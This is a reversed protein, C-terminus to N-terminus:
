DGMADAIFQRKEDDDLKRWWFLAQELPSKVKRFGAKIAAKNATLEGAVVQEYLEPAERHLRDLTYALSNGREPELTVNDSKIAADETKRDGGHAATTAERFMRLAEPDDKIVAEVKKLDEGWGRYPKETILQVLSDLEIVRGKAVRREWARNAIIKKLLGPFVRLGGTAEYLSEITSQCLQGREIENLRDAQDTM